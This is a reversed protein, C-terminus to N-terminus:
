KVMAERCARCEQCPCKKKYLKSHKAVVCIAGDVYNRIEELLYIADEPTKSKAIEALLIDNSTEFANGVEEAIKKMNM